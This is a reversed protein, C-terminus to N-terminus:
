LYTKHKEGHQQLPIELSSLVLLLHERKPFVFLVQISCGLVTHSHAVLLEQGGEPPRLLLSWLSSGM